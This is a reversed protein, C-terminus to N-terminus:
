IRPQLSSILVLPSLTFISASAYFLRPLANIALSSAFFFGQCPRHIERGGLQEDDTLCPSNRCM